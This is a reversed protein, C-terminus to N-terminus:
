IFLSRLNIMAPLQFIFLVTASDSVRTLSRLRSSAETRSTSMTTAGGYVASAATDSAM